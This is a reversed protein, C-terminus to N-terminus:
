IILMKLEIPVNMAKLFFDRISDKFLTINDLSISLTPCKSQGLNKNDSVNNTFMRSTFYNYMHNIIESPYIEILPINM